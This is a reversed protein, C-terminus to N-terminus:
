TPSPAFFLCPNFHMGRLVQLVIKCWHALIWHDVKYHSPTSSQPFYPLTSMHAWSQGLWWFWWLDFEKPNSSRVAPGSREQGWEGNTLLFCSQSLRQHPPPQIQVTQNQKNNYTGSMRFNGLCLKVVAPPDEFTMKRRWWINLDNVDSVRPM